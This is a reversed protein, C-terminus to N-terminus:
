RIRMPHVLDVHERVGLAGTGTLSLLKARAASLLLVHPDIGTEQSLRRRAESSSARIALDACTLVGAQRLRAAQRDDLPPSLEAWTCGDM